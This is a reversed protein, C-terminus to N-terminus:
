RGITLLLIMSSLWGILDVGLMLLLYWPNPSGPTM